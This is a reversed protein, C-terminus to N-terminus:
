TFYSTLFNFFDCRKTEGEIINECIDEKQVHGWDGPNNVLLMFAITMGRYFDISLYRM